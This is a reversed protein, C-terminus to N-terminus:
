TAMTAFAGAVMTGWVQTCSFNIRWVGFGEGRRRYVAATAPGGLACRITIITTPRAVIATRIRSNTRM